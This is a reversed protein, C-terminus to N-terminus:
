SLWNESKSSKQSKALNQSKLEESKKAYRVSGFRDVESNGNNRKFVPKSDDNNSSVSRSGNNWSPALKDPLRTTKLM